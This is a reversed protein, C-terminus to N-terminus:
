EGNSFPGSVGAADHGGGDIADSDGSQSALSGKSRGTFYMLIGVGVFLTGFVVTNLLYAKENYWNFVFILLIWPTNFGIHAMVPYWISGTTEMLWVLILSLLFCYLAQLANGHFWGFVASVLVASVVICLPRNAFIPAKRLSNYVVGRFILEEVLPAALSQALLMLLLASESFAGVSEANDAIWKEPFPILPILNSLFMSFTAGLVFAGPMWIGPNPRRKMGLFDAFSNGRVVKYLLLGAVLLAAYGWASILYVEAMHREYVSMMQTPDAGLWIGAFVMFCIMVLTQFLVYGLLAGVSVSVALGIRGIRKRTM